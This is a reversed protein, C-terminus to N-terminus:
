INRGGNQPVISVRAYSKNRPSMHAPKHGDKETTKLAHKCKMLEKEKNVLYQLKGGDKQLM